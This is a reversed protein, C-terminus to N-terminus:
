LYRGGFLGVKIKSIVIVDPVKGFYHILKQTCLELLFGNAKYITIDKVRTHEELLISEKIKYTDPNYDDFDFSKIKNIDIYNIVTGHLAVEQGLIKLKFGYGPKAIVDAHM